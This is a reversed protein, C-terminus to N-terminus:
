FCYTSNKKRRSPYVPVPPPATQKNCRQTPLRDRPATFSGSPSSDCNAFRLAIRFVQFVGGWVDLLYHRLIGVFYHGRHPTLYYKRRISATGNRQKIDAMPFPHGHIRPSCAHRHRLYPQTCHVGIALVKTATSHNRHEM